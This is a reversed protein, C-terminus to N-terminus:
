AYTYTHTDTPDRLDPYEGRDFKEVFEGIGANPPVCRDSVVEDWANCFTCRCSSVNCRLSWVVHGYEDEEEIVVAVSSAWIRVDVLGAQALARKFYKAVPCNNSAHAGKIGNDAFFAAIDDATKPLTAAAAEFIEKAKAKRIKMDEPLAAFSTATM